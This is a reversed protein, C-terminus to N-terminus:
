PLLVPLVGVSRVVLSILCIDNPLYHHPYYSLSICERLMCSLTFSWVRYGHMFITYIERGFQVMDRSCRCFSWVTIYKGSIDPRLRVQTRLSRVGALDHSKSIHHRSAFAPSSRQSCLHFEARRCTFGYIHRALNSLNACSAFGLDYLRGKAQTSALLSLRTRARELRLSSILCPGTVAIELSGLRGCAQMFCACCVAPIQAVLCWSLLVSSGQYLINVM